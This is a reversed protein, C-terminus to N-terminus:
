YPWWSEPSFNFGIRGDNRTTLVHRTGENRFPGGKAVERYFNITNQTEHEYGKDSIIVYYVNTLLAAVEECCGSERGHHSAIYVNTSKLARKFDENKLLAVFGPKELDGTFMVGRGHCSLFIAMSLNNEDDFQPYSSYFCTRENLGQFTPLPLAESPGCGTFVNDIAKCLREIGWGMGADSKLYKLTATSVSKNRWLWKVDIKDFLDNAGSAHDEDYNTVALMELTSINQQRLYTGPKWGTDSNHGCDIMFRTSNDATLLSCAGHEVDFIQLQM